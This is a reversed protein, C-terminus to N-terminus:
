AALPIGSVDVRRELATFTVPEGGHTEISVGPHVVGAILRAHPGLRVVTVAEGASGLEAIRATGGLTLSGGRLSSGEQEISVNGLVQLDCGIVGRGTIELDGGLEIRTAQLACAVLRVPESLSARLAQVRLSVTQAAEALGNEPASGSEVAMLVTVSDRLSSACELGLADSQGAAYASARKLARATDAFYRSVVLSAAQERTLEQGKGAAAGVLQEILARARGLESPIGDILSLLQTAPSRMGGILLTSGTVVGQIEASGGVEVTAREVSGTVSLDRRVHLQRGEAIRGYLELSGYSHIDGSRDDLDRELRAVPSVEIRGGEVRPFGDITSVIRKGDASETVNAGLELSTTRVDRVPVVEGRVTQGPEGPVPLRRTALVSGAPASWLGGGQVPGLQSAITLEGDEPEVPRTGWAIQEALAAGTLCRSVADERIGHVIGRAHLFVDALEPSPPPCPIREVLLRRVVLERNAPQDELRFRGGPHREVSLTAAMEDRSLEAFLEIRSEEDPAFAEVSQGYLVPCPRSIPPLGDVLVIVGDEWDLEPDRGGAGAPEVVVRGGIVALTGHRAREHTDTFVSAM